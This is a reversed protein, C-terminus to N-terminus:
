FCDKDKYFEKDCEVNKPDTDNKNKKMKKKTGGQAFATGESHNVVVPKKSYKDLLLLSQQPTTAYNDSGKTFDDSLDSKIKGHANSSMKLMGYAIFRDRALNTVVIKNANTLQSYPLKYELELCYTLTKDNAFVCGVSEAVEVKTNFREYWETSTLNGQKANYVAGYQEWLAAVPYQDETQKFVASEILKYLDLPKYSVSVQAWAKEQKMKDQLLQTCQGLILLYVKGRHKELTAVRVSHAKMKNSYEMAEELTLKYPVEQRMEYKLDELDNSTTAVKVPDANPNAKLGRLQDELAALLNTQKRRSHREWEQHRNIIVDSYQPLRLVVTVKNCIENAIDKGYKIGVYQQIKEQIVRMTNAANYGGYHFVNSELEKCLGVKTTKPKASYGSGRGKQGAGSRGNHGTRGDGQGEGANGGAM